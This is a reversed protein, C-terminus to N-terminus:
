FLVAFALLAVVLVAAIGVIVLVTRTAGKTAGVAMRMKQDAALRQELDRIATLGADGDRFAIRGKAIAELAKARWADTMASSRGVGVMANSGAFTIFELLDATSVPIPWNRITEAKIADVGRWSSASVSTLQGVLERVSSPAQVGAFEHGCLSCRLQYARVDGGCSPCKPSHEM